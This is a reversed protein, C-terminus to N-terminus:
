VLNHLMIGKMLINKASNVDRDLISSCSSCNYIKSSGPKYMNGCHSCTQSTYAENVPLVYKRKMTAKYMLRQKFDFFRLTNFIRNLHRNAGNTVIDHSKIDGYVLVDYDNLLTHITRWHLDDVLHKLRHEYKLITRKRYRKRQLISRSTHHHRHRRQRPHSRQGKLMIIKRHLARVLNADHQIELIGKTDYCTMFTRVGPDIGCVRSLDVADPEPSRRIPIVLCYVSHQKVIKCDCDIELKTRRKRMRKQQKKGIKLVNDTELFSPALSIQGDKDVSVLKKSVNVM